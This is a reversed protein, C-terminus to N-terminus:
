AAHMMMQVGDRRAHFRAARPVPLIQWSNQLAVLTVTGRQKYRRRHWRVFTLGLRVFRRAM